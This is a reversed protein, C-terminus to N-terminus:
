PTEDVVPVPPSPPFLLPIKLAALGDLKPRAPPKDAARLRGGLEESLYDIQIESGRGDGNDDILAHETSILMGANYEQATDKAIWLYLDLLTLNGDRDMEMEGYSVAGSLARALKHPYLTENVELDPETATIVIRGPMALSKLYYGSVPTTIFFVQERCRLPEFLRGFDLQHIDDGPVNLWSYRGDYHSHGLVIVWLADAPQTATQLEAVAKAINERSSIGRSAKIAPGDKDTPEDAWLVHVNEAAFGHSTLGSYLLELSDGFLKRHPADGPLGCLVLARRTGAAAPDDAQVAPPALAPADQALSRG